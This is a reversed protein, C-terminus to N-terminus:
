LIHAQPDQLKLSTKPRRPALLAKLSTLLVTLADPASTSFSNSSRLSPLLHPPQQPQASCVGRSGPGGLAARPRRPPWGAAADLACVGLSRGSGPSLFHNLICNESSNGDLSLFSPTKRKKTKVFIQPNKATIRKGLGSPIRVENILISLCLRM